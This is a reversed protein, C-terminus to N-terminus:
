ASRASLLSLPTGTYNTGGDIGALVGRVTDDLVFLEYASNQTQLSLKLGFSRTGASWEIGRVVAEVDVDRGDPTAHLVRVVAGMELRLLEWWQGTPLLDTDAPPSLTIEEVRTILDAYTGIIWQAVDAVNESTECILDFRSYGRVQGILAQADVDEITVATGDKRALSVSNYVQQVDRTITISIFDKGTTTSSSSFTLSPTAPIAGRTRYVIRGQRDFWVYGADSDAALLIDAWASAALTSAQLTNATIPDLDRQAAPWGVRDLIRAIRAAVTDGAGVATTLEPLDAAQLWAVGDVCLLKVTSWTVSAYDLDISDVVGVWMTETTGDVVASIRVPLNPRIESVGASVYPGSLNLPDFRGDVNDLEISATGAEYRWFPGQSRTAGRRFTLGELVYETVDTWAYGQDDGLPADVAPSTAPSLQTLDLTFFDTASALGIEVTFLPTGM